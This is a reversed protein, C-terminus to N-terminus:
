TDKRGLNENILKEVSIPKYTYNKVNGVSKLVKGFYNECILKTQDTGGFNRILALELSQMTLESGSLSKVLAYYDHLGHFNKYKQNKEYDLYASALQKFVSDAIGNQTKEDLLMRAMLTLDNIEFKPWQVFLARSSKSNDLHWNSIGVVSVAPGDKFSEKNVSMTKSTASKSSGEMPDSVPTLQSEENSDDKSFGPELLAHLVKLPNFRSTEALGVEDLLVVAQVPFAESSTKQYTEAKDFVKLIGALTSSASGQHLIFYVQPLTKFYEDDSDAGRLNSSILRVALSKSSGPAGIIFVPIQNLICVIMVHINKLLADNDATSPPCVMRGMFDQQERRIIKQFDSADFRENHKKFVQAMCERYRERLVQNYLRLQYCLGLSLVFSYRILTKEDKPPYNRYQSFIMFFSISTSHTAPPRDKMSKQFWLALKIARKVDRLSVTYTEEVIRIFKQSECLLDVFITHAGLQSELM